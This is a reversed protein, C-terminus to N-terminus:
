LYAHMGEKWAKREWEGGCGELNHCLVWGSDGTSYLHKGSAIQNVEQVVNQMGAIFGVAM